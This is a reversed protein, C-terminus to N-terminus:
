KGDDDEDDHPDYGQTMRPREGREIEAKWRSIRKPNWFTACRDLYAVVTDRDGRELLLFDLHFDPGFSSLVPSDERGEEGAALLEKRATVFDGSEVAVCGRVIHAEHLHDHRHPEEPCEAAVAIAEDAYRLAEPLKGAGLAAEACKVLISLRRGASSELSLAHNLQELARGAFRRATDPKTRPERRPDQFRRMVGAERLLDTGQEEAWKPWSPAMREGRMLLERSRTPDLLSYFKAANFIVEPPVDPRALIREWAESIAAFRPDPVATGCWPTGVIDRGPERELLWVVHTAFRDRLAPDQINRAFLYGLLKLRSDVDDPDRRLAAELEDAEEESLNLGSLALEEDRDM